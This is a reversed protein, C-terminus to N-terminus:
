FILTFATFEEERSDVQITGNHMQMVQRALSLGIGSGEKRTTFFPIFIQDLIEEPIGKGNDRVVISFGGKHESAICQILPDKVGDLAFMSNKVLNILTQELLNEDARIQLNLPSVDLSLKVEAQGLEDSLLAAIHDLMETVRISSYSAEGVDTFSKYTNIFDSLGGSRKIMTKLGLVTRDIVEDDIEIQSKKKKGDHFLDFLSTSLLHLPVVSNTIEHNLVSILM